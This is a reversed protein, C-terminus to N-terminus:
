QGEGNESIWTYEDNLTVGGRGKNWRQLDFYSRFWCDAVTNIDGCVGRKLLERSLSEMFLTGALNRCREVMAIYGIPAIPYFSRILRKEIECIMRAVVDPNEVNAGPPVSMNVCWYGGDRAYTVHFYMETYDSDGSSQLYFLVESGPPCVVMQLIEDNIESSRMHITDSVCGATMEAVCVSFVVWKIALHTKM